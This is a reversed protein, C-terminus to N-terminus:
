VGNRPGLRAPKRYKLNYLETRDGRAIVYYDRLGATTILLVRAGKRELLANLGVTTGHVMFEIDSPNSILEQIGSLVANSANEPTYHLKGTLSRGTEVESVVLDTFTGGIDAAVRYHPM